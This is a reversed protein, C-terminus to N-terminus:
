RGSPLVTKGVLWVAGGAILCMAIVVVRKSPLRMGSGLPAGSVRASQATGTGEVYEFAGISPPNPRAAGDADSKLENFDVGAGIAPSGMQLHYDTASMLKPDQITGYKSAASMGRPTSESFWLNNSGSITGVSDGGCLFVSQRSTGAYAPQYAINNVLRSTVNMQNAPVLVACSSTNQSNINLYSSCDYMTNNYIDVTGAATSTGYGKVAICSHPDYGGGDSAAKLGVHHIVNNYIAIQGQAPDITSLNIGSGNVDAIDNDHISLNHFGATRDENIQIGNYAATNYIRNWAIEVHNGAFYVAHYTKNSGDPLRAVDTSINRIVNGLAEVNDAGTIAGQPGTCDPCEITNGVIRDFKDPSLSNGNPGSGTLTLGSYVSYSSVGTNRIGYTAGGEGGLHATAGPRVIITIFKDSTTSESDITLASHWGRGDFYRYSVGDLLVLTDGPGLCSYFTYPTRMASSNYSAEDSSAYNTLGWPGAFSNHSRMTGCNGPKSNDVAPGIFYIGGSRAKFVKDANSARGNVSVVIPGSSVHGVQVGIKKDSWVLYQSVARGNITVSSTGQQAGFNVGFITLYTGDNHEGGSTPGSLIDTYLIRPAVTQKGHAGQGSPQVASQLRATGLRANTSAVFQAFSLAALLLCKMGCLAFANLAKIRFIQIKSQLANLCSQLVLM